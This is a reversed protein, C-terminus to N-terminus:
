GAGNEVEMLNIHRNTKRSDAVDNMTIARGCSVRPESPSLHKPGRRGPDHQFHAPLARADATELPM